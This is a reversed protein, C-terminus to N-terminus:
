VIVQVCPELFIPITGPYPYFNKEMGPYAPIPIPYRPIIGSNPYFFAAPHDWKSGQNTCVTYSPKFNVKFAEMYDIDVWQVELPIDAKRM